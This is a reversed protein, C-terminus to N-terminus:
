DTVTYSSDYCINISDELEEGDAFYAFVDYSCTDLGDEVSVTVSENPSLDSSAIDDGWDESDYPVLYFETITSSSGNRLTFQVDEGALSPYSSLAVMPLTLTIAGALKTLSKTNM